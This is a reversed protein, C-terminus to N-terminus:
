WSKSEGFHLVQEARMFGMCAEDRLSIALILDEQTAHYLRQHSRKQNLM